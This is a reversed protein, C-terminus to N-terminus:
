SCVAGNHAQNSPRGIHIHTAWHGIPRHSSMHQARRLAEAVDVGALLEQHIRQTLLATPTDPVLSTTAIIDRAGRTLAITALGVPEPGDPDIRGSTCAGMHVVAPLGHTLMEAAGLVTDGNTLHLRHALGSGTDGHCGIYAVDYDASLKCRWEDPETDFEGANWLERLAAEELATGPLEPDRFGLFRTSPVSGGQDGSRPLTRLSPTVSVSAHACLRVGAQSVPLAAWPVSWLGGAPVVLLRAPKGHHHAGLWDRIGRPLLSVALARLSAPEANDGRYLSSSPNSLDDLVKTATDWDALTHIRPEAGPVVTVVWGGDGGPDLHFAALAADEPVLSRLREPRLPPPAYQSAFRGVLTELDRVADRLPGDISRTVHDLVPLDRSLTVAGYRLSGTRDRLEDIREFAAAIEPDTDAPIDASLLSALLDGRAAELVELGAWGCSPDDAAAATIVDLSSAYTSALEEKWWPRESNVSQGSRISEAARTATLAAQVAEATDGNAACVNALSTAVLSEGRHNGITRNIELANRLAAKATVSDNTLAAIRGIQHTANAQGLRSGLNDYMELASKLHMRASPYDQGIMALKGLSEHAHAQGRGQGATQYLELALALYRQALDLNSRLRELEGLNRYAAAQGGPSDIEEFLTRSAMLPEEATEYERRTLALTGLDLLTSAQGLRSGIQKYIDLASEIHRRAAAHDASALYVYGISHLVNAQGLRQRIERYLELATSLSDRARSLEDEYLAVLGLESHTNALGLRNDLSAYLDLAKSLHERAEITRGQLRALNGWERQSNAQGIRDGTEAYLELAMGLYQRSGEFEGQGIALTGLSSYVNAQGNRDAGEVYLELAITLHHQAVSSEDELIAIKGLDLHVAAQGGLDGADVYLDLAIRLQATAKQYDHVLVSSESSRRYARAQSVAVQADPTSM